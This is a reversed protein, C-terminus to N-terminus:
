STVESYIGDKLHAIQLDPRKQALVRAVAYSQIGHNCYLLVSSGHHPEKFWEYINGAPRCIGGLNNEEHEFAERVDIIQHAANKLIFARAETLDVALLSNEYSKKSQPEIQVSFTELGNADFRILRGDAHTIGTTIHQIICTAMMSGIIGAVPGLVGEEECSGILPSTPPTPYADSYRTGAKAHFLSIHGETRHVAGFMVPIHLAAARDDIAYRATTNDTCDAILTIGAPLESSPNEEFRNLIFEVTVFPYQKSLQVAAAEAKFKGCDEVGFLFQRHINHIEIRDFDMLTLKGIGAAALYCAVPNGLGGLGIVLVHADKLFQQQEEGFGPLRLHRSFQNKDTEDVM